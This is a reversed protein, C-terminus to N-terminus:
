EYKLLQLRLKVGNYFRYDFDVFGLQKNYLYRVKNVGLHFTGTADITNCAYVRGQITVTSSATIRYENEIKTNEYSGWGAGISLTSFYVDYVRAFKRYSPFPAIETISFYGARPPHLWYEDQNEIAGTSDVENYGVTYIKKKLAEPLKKQSYKWLVTVQNGPDYKWPVQTTQFILTDTFEIKGISDSYHVLYTYSTNAELIKNDQAKTQCLMFFLIVILLYRLMATFTFPIQSLAAGNSNLNM